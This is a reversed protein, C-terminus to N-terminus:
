GARCVGSMFRMLMKRLRLSTVLPSALTVANGSSGPRNAGGGDVFEALQEVVGVGDVGAGGEGQAVAGFGM